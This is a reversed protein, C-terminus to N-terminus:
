ETVEIWTTGGDNTKIAYGCGCCRHAEYQPGFGYQIMPKDCFECWRYKTKKGEMENIAMLGSSYSIHGSKAFYKFLKERSEKDFKEAEIGSSDGGYFVTSNPINEELWWAVCIIFPLPGKEYGEGYYRNLTHVEIFQENNEPKIEPGDQHFENIIELAHHKKRWKNSEKEIYFEDHGFSDCIRYSLDWVQKETLFNDKGKVKVFMSVDVGM